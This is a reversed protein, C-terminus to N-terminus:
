LAAFPADDSAPREDTAGTDPNKGRVPPIDTPAPLFDVVADLLPQVGKNRFAAGVLVPVARNAITARRLAARVEAPGVYKGELYHAMIQDDVDALAQLLTDRATEAEDRREDPVDGVEFELGYSDDDAPWVI